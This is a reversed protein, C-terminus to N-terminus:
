RADLVRRVEEATMEHKRDVTEWAALMRKYRPVECDWGNFGNENTVDTFLRQTQLFRAYAMFDTEGNGDFGPFCVEHETAVGDGLRKRAHQLARYLSLSNSVLRCDEQSLEEVERIVHGYQGVFGSELIERHLAHERDDPNLAELIRYQNILIRREIPTM